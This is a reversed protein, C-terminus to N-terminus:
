GRGGAQAPPIAFALNPLIPAEVKGVFQLAALGADGFLQVPEQRVGDAGVKQAVDLDAGEQAAADIRGGDSGVHRGLHVTRQGGKGDANRVLIEIRQWHGPQHGVFVVHVEVFPHNGGIQHVEHRRHDVMHILRRIRQTDANVQDRLQGALLDLHDPPTVATILNEAAVVAIKALPQPVIVAAHGPPQTLLDKATQHFQDRLGKAVLAKGLLSSPQM